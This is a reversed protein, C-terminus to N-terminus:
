HAPLPNGTGQQAYRARIAEFSLVERQGGKVLAEARARDKAAILGHGMPTIYGKDLVFYANEARLWEETEYDHVWFVAVDERRRANYVLMDGIDDFRHAEGQRTIYSAAFRPESIIMGCQDCVDKGYSIEPAKDLPPGTQCGSAVWLFGLLLPLWTM